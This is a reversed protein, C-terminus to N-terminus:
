AVTLKIIDDTQLSHGIKHSDLFYTQEFSFCCFM